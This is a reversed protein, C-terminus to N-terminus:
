KRNANASRCICPALTSSDGRIDWICGYLSVEERSSPLIYQSIRASEDVGETIMMDPCSTSIPPIRTSMLWNSKLSVDELTLSTRVAFMTRMLKTKNVTVRRSTALVLNTLRIKASSPSDKDM